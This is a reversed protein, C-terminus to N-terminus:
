GTWGGDIVHFQGTTFASEDGALYVALAAIEKPEGLRGMPQRQVFAARVDAATKNEAAAQKAIREELSPSAVTGPCIANCRIGEGVFDIAISKTLGIVAAKSSGYACRNLVGGVSSAVSSMNIISGRRRQRMGPLVLRILRFMSKVNLEFAFDWDAETCELISGTPVCGACNFLIDIEGLSPVTRNLADSDTVDMVVPQCGNVKKLAEANIDAAFVQAAEQAFAEAVARGIGQAAATVLARKGELRLTM